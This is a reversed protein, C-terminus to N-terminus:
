ISIGRRLRQNYNNAIGKLKVNNEVAVAIAVAALIAALPVVPASLDRVAKLVSYLPSAASIRV